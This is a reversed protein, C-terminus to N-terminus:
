ISYEVFSRQMRHVCSGELPVSCKAYLKEHAGEVEDATLTRDTARYTLAFAM